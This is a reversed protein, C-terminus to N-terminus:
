KEKKLLCTFYFKSGKGPESEFDIIGDMMKVIRKSLALGAGIGGYERTYGTDAQEFVSFLNEQDQKSMGIGNDAVEIKLTITENDEKVQHANFSIEGKEPTFKIANSLLIRIVQKLRNKDGSISNPIVPDIKYNLTQEKKGANAVATELVDRIETHIDFISYSLRFTDGEMDSFDLVDEIM